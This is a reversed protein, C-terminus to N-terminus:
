LDGSNERPKSLTGDIFGLKPKAGLGTRASNSWSTYNGRNCQKSTLVMSRHDSNSLHYLNKM